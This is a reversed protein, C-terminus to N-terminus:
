APLAGHLNAVTRRRQELHKAVVATRQRQDNGRQGVLLGDVARPRSVFRQGFILDRGFFRSDAAIEDPHLESVQLVRKGVGINFALMRRIKLAYKCLLWSQRDFAVTTPEGTSGSTTSTDLSDLTAGDTLLSSQNVQQMQKSLIPFRKLDAATVIDTVRIGLSRYYAVSATAFKLQQLLKREQFKRITEAGWWQSRQLAILKTAVRMSDYINM